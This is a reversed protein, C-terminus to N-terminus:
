RTKAPIILLLDSAALHLGDATTVWGRGDTHPARVPYPRQAFVGEAIPTGTGIALAKLSAWTLYNATGVILDRDRLQSAYTLRVAAPNIGHAVRMPAIVIVPHFTVDVPHPTPTKALTVPM